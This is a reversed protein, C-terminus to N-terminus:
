AFEIGLEGLMGLPFAARMGPVVRLWVVSVRHVGDGDVLPTPGQVLQAQVRSALWSGALSPITLMLLGNDIAMAFAGYSGLPISVQTGPAIALPFVQVAASGERRIYPEGCLLPSLVARPEIGFLLKLPDYSLPGFGLTTSPLTLDVRLMPLSPNHM